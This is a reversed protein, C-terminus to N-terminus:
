EQLEDRLGHVAGYVTTEFGMNEIVGQMENGSDLMVHKNWRSRM